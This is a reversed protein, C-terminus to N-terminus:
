ATQGEITLRTRGGLARLERALIRRQEDTLNLKDVVASFVDVQARVYEDRRAELGLRTIETGLARFRDREENFAKVLVHQRAGRTTTTVVEIASEVNSEGDAAGEVKTAKTTETIVGYGIDDVELRSVLNELQSVIGASRWYEEILGEAPDIARPIGFVHVARALAERQAAEALVRKAKARSRPTGGGHFRCADAGHLPHGLCPQLNGNDDRKTRHKACSPKGWPTAHQRLCKPCVEIHEWVVNPDAKM